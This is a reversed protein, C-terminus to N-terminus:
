SPILFGRQILGRVIGCILPIAKAKDAELSTVLPDLLTNLERTGDCEILLREVYPDVTGRHQAFGRERMLESTIQRWTGEVPRSLQALRADPLLRFRRKLLQSDDSVTELFDLLAFGAEIQEGCPGFMTDLGDEVRFWNKHSSSRRM